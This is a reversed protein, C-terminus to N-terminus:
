KVADKTADGVDKAADGVQHAATAVADNKNNQSQILAFAGVAILAIVIIAVIATLGGGSREIIVERPEDAM